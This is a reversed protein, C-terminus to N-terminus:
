AVRALREALTSRKLGTALAVQRLSLGRERLDAAWTWVDVGEPPLPYGNEPHRNAEMRAVRVLRTTCRAVISVEHPTWGGGDAVIRAKLESLTEETGVARTRKVCHRLEDRADELAVEALAGSAANAIRERYIVHPPNSEGQPVDPGEVNRSGHTPDLNATSGHQVLELRMLVPWAARMVTAVDPTMPRVTGRSGYPAVLALTSDWM